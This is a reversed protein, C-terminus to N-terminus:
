SKRRKVETAEYDRKWQERWRKKEECEDGDEYLSATSRRHGKWAPRPAGALSISGHECPEIVQLFEM